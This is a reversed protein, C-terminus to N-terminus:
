KLFSDVLSCPSRVDPGPIDLALARERARRGEGSTGWPVDRAAWGECWSRRRVNPGPSTWSGRGRGRVVVSAPPEGRSTGRGTGPCVAGVGSERARRGEGSIGWPVDRPLEDRGRAADVFSRTAPRGAGVGSERAPRGDGSTRDRSTWRRGDRARAADNVGPCAPASM